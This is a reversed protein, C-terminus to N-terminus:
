RLRRAGPALTASDDFKNRLVARHAELQPEPRTTPLASMPGFRAQLLDIAIEAFGVELKADHFDTGPCSKRM